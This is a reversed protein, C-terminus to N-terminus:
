NKKNDEKNWEENYMCIYKCNSEITGLRSHYLSFNPSGFYLFDHLIRPFYLRVLRRANMKESKKARAVRTDARAPEGLQSQM